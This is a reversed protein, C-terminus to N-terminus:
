PSLQFEIWLITMSVIPIRGEFDDDLCNTIRDVFDDYLSADDTVWLQDCKLVRFDFERYKHLIDSAFFALSSGTM